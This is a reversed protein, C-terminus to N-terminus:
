RGAVSCRSAMGARDRALLLLLDREPDEAGPHLVDLLARERVRAPVEGNQPAIVAVIRGAGLDARRRRQETAVVPDDVEVRALAPEARLRAVDAVCVDDIARGQAVGIRRELQLEDLDAEVRPRVLRVLQQRVSAEVSSPSARWTRSSTWM